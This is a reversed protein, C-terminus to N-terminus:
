KRERAKPAEGDRPSLQIPLPRLGLPAGLCGRQFPCYAREPKVPKAEEKIAELKEEKVAAEKRKEEKPKEEVVSKDEALSESSEAGESEEVADPSPESEKKSEKEAKEETKVDAPKTKEAPPPVPTVVRPPAAGQAKATAGGLPPPNASGFQSEVLDLLGGACNRLIALGEIDDAWRLQQSWLFRIRGVTRCGACM